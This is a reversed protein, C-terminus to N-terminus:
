KSAQRQTQGSTERHAEALMRGAAKVMMEGSGEACRASVVEYNGEAYASHNPVYGVSGNALEIVHTQRFPSAAKIALGLEVFIEGPLSVWALDKGMTIVQVEAELPKGSQAAADLAKAAQVQEMFEAQGGRRVIDRAQRVEEESVKIAPLLVLESRARLMTDDAPRLGMYAKFVAAALMTGLRNAEEPGHQRDDWATNIHNINGCAGNAFITLMEPGKHDSLRRTLAGPYDASVLQGGTTDPHMAFNVYTLLPKKLATEIYVVGVGPDIPGAPRVINPNLKGPNWGVTGDKMWFRRNFALQKEQSSAFSVKATTRRNHAETVARAIQEALGRAYKTGPDDSPGDLDLVPGTHTHTASIMVNSGPMGTKEQILKRAALVMPRPTAILDCVVLAVETRGDDLVAAKAYLDDLAGQSGRAHYYGALQVGTPPNIKAVATGVRLDAAVGPAAWITVVALALALFPQM